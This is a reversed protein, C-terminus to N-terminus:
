KPSIPDIQLLLLLKLQLITDLVAGGASNPPVGGGDGEGHHGHHDTGQGQPLHPVAGSHHVGVGGDEEGHDTGQSQPSIFQNM